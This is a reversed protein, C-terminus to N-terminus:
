AIPAKTYANTYVAKFGEFAADLAAANIIM